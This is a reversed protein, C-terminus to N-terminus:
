ARKRRSKLGLLALCMLSWSAPLPIPAPQTGFVVNSGNLAASFAQIDSQLLSLDGPGYGAFLEQRVNDPVLSLGPDYFPTLPNDYAVMDSGEFDTLNFGIESVNIPGNIYPWGGESRSCFDYDPYDACPFNHRQVPLMGDVKIWLNATVKSIFDIPPDGPGSLADAISSAYEAPFDYLDLEFAFVPDVLDMTESTSFYFVPIGTTYSGLTFSGTFLSADNAFTITEGIPDPDGYSRTVLGSFNFTFDPIPIALGDPDRRESTENSQTSAAVVNTSSILPPLPFMLTEAFLPTTILGLFCSALPLIRRRM